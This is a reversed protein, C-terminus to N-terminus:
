AVLYISIIKSLINNDDKNMACLSNFVIVFPEPNPSHYLSLVDMRNILYRLNLGWYHCM